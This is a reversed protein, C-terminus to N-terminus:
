FQTWEGNTIWGCGNVSPVLLLKDKPIHINHGIEINEGTTLMWNFIKQMLVKYEDVLSICMSWLATNYFYKIHEGAGENYIWPTVRFVFKGLYQPKHYEWQDFKKSLTYRGSLKFIRSGICGKKIAYNLLREYALMENLGKNKGVTNIHRNFLNVDSEVFHDVLNTLITQQSSDLAVTSNDTFLINSGPAHIRISEITDITQRFRQDSTFHSHISNINSIVFFTSNIM